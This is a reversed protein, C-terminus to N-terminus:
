TILGVLKPRKLLDPPLHVNPQLFVIRPDDGFGASTEFQIDWRWGERPMPVPVVDAQGM